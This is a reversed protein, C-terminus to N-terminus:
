KKATGSKEKSLSSMISELLGEPAIEERYVRVSDPASVGVAVQRGSISVIEICIDDGIILKQGAKRTLTLM